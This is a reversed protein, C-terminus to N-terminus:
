QHRLFHILNKLLDHCSSWVSAFSFRNTNLIYRNNSFSPFWDKINPNLQTLTDKVSDPVTHGNDFERCWYADWLDLAVAVPLRIPNPLSLKYSQAFKLFNNKWSADSLIQSPIVYFAGGHRRQIFVWLRFSPLIEILILLTGSYQKGLLWPKENLCTKGVFSASHDFFIINPM